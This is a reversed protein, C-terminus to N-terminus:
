NAETATEAEQEAPAEDKAAPKGGGLLATVEEQLSEIEELRLQPDKVIFAEGTKHREYILLRGNKVPKAEMQVLIKKRELMVALIYRANETEPSDEEILRRLLSEANEKKVVEKEEPPPPPEFTSRWFSFPELSEALRDWSEETYDKRVFGEGESDEFIATYFPEDETFEHGTECCTLSRSKIKWDHHM